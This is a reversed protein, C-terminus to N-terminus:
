YTARPDPPKDDAQCRMPVSEFGPWDSNSMTHVTCRLRNYLCVLLIYKKYTNIRCDKQLEVHESRGNREDDPTWSKRYRCSQIFWAFTDLQEAKRNPGLRLVSCNSLNTYLAILNPTGFFARSKYVTQSIWSPRNETSSSLFNEPLLHKRYYYFHHIRTHWVCWIQRIVYKTKKM